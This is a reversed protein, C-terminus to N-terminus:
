RHSKLLSSQTLVVRFTVHRGQSVAKDSSSLALLADPGMGEAMLRSAQHHWKALEDLVAKARRVSLNKNLEKGGEPSTSGQINIRPSIGLVIATQDLAQITQSIDMLASRQDQSISSEGVGFAITKSELKDKLTEFQKVDTDVLQGMEISTVGPVLPGLQQVQQIWSHPAEGKLVLTPGELNFEVSSPPRLQIMARKQVFEPTLDMFPKLRFVVQQSSFGIDSLIQDPNIALPDRLGYITPVEEEQLSTMVLGPEQDLRELLQAWRQQEAIAQFAWMGLGLMLLGLVIWFAWPLGKTKPEFQAQLCDELQIHTEHFPTADGQFTQLLESFQAHINELTEQFVERLEMPPAGRIVGALIAGSGQEIWVTLDGMRLSELEQDQSQGFSDRVFDQIATLMGSIVEEGQGSVGEVVVHNLLLGTKKHILFVQEVRFRLTHLLVVEAFSKGTRFAEWRWQLGRWSMSDELTQHLSQVMERMAHAIAKRIAPGLIPAISDSILQPSQKISLSLAEQTIPIMSSLLRSDQKAGFGFPMRCSVVSM